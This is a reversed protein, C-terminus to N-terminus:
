FNSIGVNIKEKSNLIEEFVEQSSVPAIMGAYDIEEKGNKDFYFYPRGLPIFGVKGYLGSLKELDTCLMSIDMNRNKMEDIAKQLIQTAFGRRRLNKDVVMGGLGGMRIEKKGFNFKRLFIELLGAIKGEYYGVLILDPKSFYRRGLEEPTDYHKGWNEESFNHLDLNLEQILDKYVKIDLKV